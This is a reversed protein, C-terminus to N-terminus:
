EYASSTRANRSGDVLSPPQDGRSAAARVAEKIAAIVPTPIERVFYEKSLDRPFHELTTEIVSRDRPNMGDFHALTRRADITSDGPNIVIIHPIRPIAAIPSSRLILAATEFLARPHIERAICSLVNDPIGGLRFVLRRAAPLRLLTHVGLRSAIGLLFSAASRATRSARLFETGVFPEIAVIAVCRRFNRLHTLVYYGYSIGALVFPIDGFRDIVTQLDEAYGVHTAPALPESGIRFGPLDVPLVSFHDALFAIFGALITSNTPFSHLLILPPLSNRGEGLDPQSVM